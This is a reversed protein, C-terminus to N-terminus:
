FKFGKEIVFISKKYGKLKLPFFICLINKRFGIEFSKKLFDKISPNKAQSKELAFFFKKM